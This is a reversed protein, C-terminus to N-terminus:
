AFYIFVAVRQEGSIQIPSFRVPTFVRSIIVGLFVWTMNAAVSFSLRPPKDSGQYGVQRLPLLSREHEGSGLLTMGVLSPRRIECGLDVSSLFYKKALM